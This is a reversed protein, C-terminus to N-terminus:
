VWFCRVFTYENSKAVTIAAKRPAHIQMFMIVSDGLRQVIPDTAPRAMMMVMLQVCFRFVLSRTDNIIRKPKTSPIHRDGKSFIAFTTSSLIMAVANKPVAVM